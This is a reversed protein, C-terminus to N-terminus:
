RDRLTGMAREGQGKLISLVREFEVPKSIYDDMGAAICKDRDGSMANATMAVIITHRSDKEYERIKAASQYGDMVPMQCDMFIVDYNTAQTAEFAEIGNNAIDCHLGLSLLLQTFVRQNMQDDEALLIKPVLKFENKIDLMQESNNKAQDAAPGMNDMAYTADGTRDLPLRVEFTFTSGEGLKSELHISGGMRVALEKSISLGLGTGEYRKTLSSDVQSFPQFLKARAESSIGIGTDKVIFKLLVAEQEQEGCDVTMAVSGTSTFKIANSLLNCLIQQIRAPDGCVNEKIMNKYESNLAIGKERAKLRFLALSNEVIEEVGFSEESISMADAEIKSLDLIDNILHLLTFSAAKAEDIFDQQTSSLATTEVLQLFGVIGNMPTRIEHSMNALFRSKAITAAEAAEKAQLLENETNKRETTDRATGYVGVTKGSEDIIPVANTSHWYYTGQRHRIRYEFNEHREGSNIILNLWDAFSEVDDPHIFERYSSGVVQDVQHGLLKTWAPSVFTFNNRGDLMYIIDQSNEILLRYKRESEQLAIEEKKRMSIDRTISIIHPVGRLMIIRASIMAHIGRGNKPTLIAEFNECYGHEKLEQVISNREEANQWINLELTTKGIVEGRSYGSILSFGENIDVILGDNLSTILVSDPSTNFILERTDKAEVIESHLKQNLMVIFGFAWLLSVIFADIFPIFNFISSEYLTATSLGTLFMITRYLFIGGHILFVFVNFNVTASIAPMKNVFLVYATLFSVAAIAGNFVITRIFVSDFGYVFYIFTSIFVISIAILLKFNVQKDFFRLIGVYVFIVGIFIFVNQIVIAIQLFEPINRLLMGIFGITEALAWALWWSVCRHGKTIRFQLFFAAVLILHSIGLIFVFTNIDISM